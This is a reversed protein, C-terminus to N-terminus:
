SGASRVSSGGVQPPATKSGPWTTASPIRLRVLGDGSLDVLGNDALDELADVLDGGIAETAVSDLLEISSWGELSALWPLLARPRGTLGDVTQAVVSGLSVQRDPQDARRSGDLSSAVGREVRDAIQTVTLVRTRMAMLELALPIGDLLEGVREGPVAAAQLDLGPRVRAAFELFLAAAPSLEGDAGGVPLPGVRVVREERLHLPMRSTALASVRSGALCRALVAGFGDIQEVNDLVLLTGEGLGALAAAPDDPDVGADRCVREIAAQAVTETALESIHVPRGGKALRHAVARAVTTKGIGGLGVLSVVQAADLLRTVEDVLADRGIFPDPMPPIRRPEPESAVAEPATGTHPELDQNLIRNELETLGPSPDVGLEDVLLARVARCTELADRQRGAHYHARALLSWGREEYPREQTARRAEQAASDFDGCALLSEAHDLVTAARFDAFLQSANALGPLAQVGDLPEGVWSGLADGLLRSARAADGSRLAARGEAVSERFASADVVLQPGVLRYADGAREIAVGQGLLKRLGSVYVQVANRASEPSATGWLADIIQDTTALRPSRLALVALVARQKTGGVPM